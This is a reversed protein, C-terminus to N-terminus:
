WGLAGGPCHFPKAGCPMRCRATNYEQVLALDFDALKPMLSGKDRHCVNSGMHLHEVFVIAQEVLTIAKAISLLRCKGGTRRRHSLCRHLNEMGSFDMRFCLQSQSHYVEYLQCIHQNNWQEQILLKMIDIM